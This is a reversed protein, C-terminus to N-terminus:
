YEREFAALSGYLGALRGVVFFGAEWAFLVYFYLTPYLFNHPSLDGKAFGLARNLIYPEDPHLVDPLGWGAAWLRFALALGAIAALTWGGRITSGASSMESSM